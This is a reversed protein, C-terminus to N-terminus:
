AVQGTSRMQSGAPKDPWPRTHDWPTKISAVARRVLAEVQEDDPVIGGWSMRGVSGLYGRAFTHYSEVTLQENEETALYRLHTVLTNNFTVVLVPGNNTTSSRALHLARLMAM